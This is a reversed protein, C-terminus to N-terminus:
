EEDDKNKKQSSRTSPEERSTGSNRNLALHHLQDILEIPVIIVVILQKLGIRGFLIQRIPVVLFNAFVWEGGNKTVVPKVIHEINSERLQITNGFITLNRNAAINSICLDSAQHLQGLEFPQCQAARSDCILGGLLERGQRCAALKELGVDTVSTYALSLKQLNTWSSASALAADSILTGDLYLQELQTLKGLRGIGADTVPTMRLALVRLRTLNEFAQLARENVPLRDLHLEELM